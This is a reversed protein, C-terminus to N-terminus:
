ETVDLLELDIINLSTPDIILPQSGVISGDVDMEWVRDNASSSVLLNGNPHELIAVPSNIVSTDASFIVTDGSVDANARHVQHDGQTVFYLFGNSHLHIGYPNNGIVTTSSCSANLPDSVDYVHINDSGGHNTVFLRGDATLHLGRPNSLTCSGLTTNIYPNGVQVGDADYRRIQNSSVVFSHGTVIDTEIDYINGSLGSFFEDTEVGAQETWSLYHIRDTNDLAVLIESPGLVSLGRVTGLDVLFHKLVAVLEGALSYAVVSRANTDGSAAIIYQVTTSASGQTPVQLFVGKKDSCGLLLFGFLFLVQKKLIEGLLRM